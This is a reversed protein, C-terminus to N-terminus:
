DVEERESLSDFWNELKDVKERSEQSQELRAMGRRALGSYWSGPAAEEIVTRYADRAGKPLGARAYARGMKYSAEM